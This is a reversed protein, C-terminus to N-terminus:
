HETLTKLSAMSSGIKEKITRNPEDHLSAGVLPRVASKLRLERQEEPRWLIGLQVQQDLVKPSHDREKVSGNIYAQMILDSHRGLANLLKTGAQILVQSM